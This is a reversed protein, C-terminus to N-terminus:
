MSMRWAPMTPRSPSAFTMEPAGAGPSVTDLTFRASNPTGATAVTCPTASVESIVEFTKSCNASTNRTIWTNTSPSARSIAKLVAFM